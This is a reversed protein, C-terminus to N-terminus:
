LTVAVGPPVLPGTFFVGIHRPSPLAIAASDVADRDPSHFVVCASGIVPDEDDAHIDTMVVWEDPYRAVIEEWTLRESM